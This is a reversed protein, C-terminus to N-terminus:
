GGSTNSEKWAMADLPLNREWYRNGEFAGATVYFTWDVPFKWISFWVFAMDDAATAHDGYVYAKRLPNFDTAYSELSEFDPREPEFFFGLRQGAVAEAEAPHLTTKPIVMEFYKPSFMFQVFRPISSDERWGDGEPRQIVLEEFDELGGDGVAEPLAAQKVLAAKESLQDADASQDSPKEDFIIFSRNPTLEQQRQRMLDLYYGFQQKRRELLDLYQNMAVAGPGIM